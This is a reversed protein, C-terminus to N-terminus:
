WPPRQSGSTISNLEVYKELLFSGCKLLPIEWTTWLLSGFYSIGSYSNSVACLTFNYITMKADGAHDLPFTRM